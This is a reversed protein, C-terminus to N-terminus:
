CDPGCHFTHISAPCSRHSSFEVCLSVPGQHYVAQDLSFTFSDGAKLTLTKTSGGTAGGVNCRMDNSNLDKQTPGITLMFM